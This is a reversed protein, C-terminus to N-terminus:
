SRCAFSPFLETLGLTPWRTRFYRHGATWATSSSPSLAKTSSTIMPCRLFVGQLTTSAEVCSPLPRVAVRPELILESNWLSSIHDGVRDGEWAWGGLDQMTEVVFDALERFEGAVSHAEVGEDEAQELLHTSPLTEAALGVM